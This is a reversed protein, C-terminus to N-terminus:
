VEGVCFMSGIDVEDEARVANMPVRPEPRVQDPERRMFGMRARSLTRPVFTRQIMPTMQM